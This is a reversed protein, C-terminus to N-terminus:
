KNFSLNEEKDGYVYIIKEVKKCNPIRIEVYENTQTEVARKTGSTQFITIYLTKDNLRYEFDSILRGQRSTSFEGVFEGKSNIYSYKTLLDDFKVEEQSYHYATCVGFIIAAAVLFSACIIVSRRITDNKMIKKIKIKSM